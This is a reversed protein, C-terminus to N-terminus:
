LKLRAEFKLGEKRCWEDLLTVGFRVTEMPTITRGFPLFFDGAYNGPKFNNQGRESYNRSRKEWTEPFTNALIDDSLEQSGELWLRNAEKFNEPLRHKLEFFEKKHTRNKDSAFTNEDSGPTPVPSHEGPIACVALRELDLSHITDHSVAGLLLCLGRLHPYVNTTKRVVRWYAIISRWNESGGVQRTLVKYRDDAIFAVIFCLIAEIASAAALKGDPATIGDSTARSRSYRDAIHKLERGMGAHKQFEERWSRRDDDRLNTQSDGHASPTRVIKEANSNPAKASSGLPTQVEAEGSDARRQHNNRSDKIPTSYITKSASSQQHSSSKVSTTSPVNTRELASVKSTSSVNETHGQSPEEDYQRRQGKERQKNDPRRLEADDGSHSERPPKLPLYDTPKRKGEFKLLAEVRRRNGRGYRLRVILKKPKTTEATGFDSRKLKVIKSPSKESHLSTADVDTDRHTSNTRSSSINSNKSQSEKHLPKTSIPKSDLPPKSQVGDRSTNSVNSLDRKHDPRKSVPADDEIRALEEELLPPLTPSLLAPLRPSSSTPPLTPSLLAPIKKGSGQAKFSVDEHSQSVRMRKPAPADEERELSRGSSRKSRNDQRSNDALSDPAKFDKATGVPPARSRGQKADDKSIKPTGSSPKKVSEGEARTKYDSLSIKKKTVGNKPTNSASSTTPPKDGNKAMNDGDPDSWDGVAVLLSDTDHHMLFTMYQLQQEDAAFPGKKGVAWNNVFRSGLRFPIDTPVTLLYPSAPLVRDKLETLRINVSELESPVINENASGRNETYHYSSRDPPNASM